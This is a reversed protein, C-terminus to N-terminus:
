NPRELITLWGEDFTSHKISFRRYTYALHLMGDAGQLLSPYSFEGWDAELVKPEKWTRGGDTSQVLNFPTRADGDTDNYALVIRGSDMRTMCIGSDPCKLETLETDTWTAGNDESRSELLRREHRMLCLLKGGGLDVVTPQEGGPIFGRREWSVGDKQLVLLFSGYKRDVVGSIPLVFDGNELTIPLNRPLWALSGPIEVDENWTHGNDKSVRQMLRCESWGAGRRVPRSGEMRGWIIGIRGDPFTFIVANGPPQGPNSVVREPTSWCCADKARRALYLAQDNASEYSGAYWLCLLDGNAAEAVTPCHHVAVGPIKRFILESAFYMDGYPDPTDLPAGVEDLPTGEASTTSVEVPKGRLLSQIAPELYTLGGQYVLKAEKGILYFSPTALPAFTKVVSGDLDRYIPFRLGHNQMYGRIEESSELTNPVVGVFLVDRYRYREYIESIEAIQNEVAKSRTSLFTLVTGRREGYNEMVQEFGDEATFHVAPAAGGIELAKAMGPFVVAVVLLFRLMHFGKMYSGITNLASGRRNEGRAGGM